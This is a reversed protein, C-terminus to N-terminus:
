GRTGTVFDFTKKRYDPRKDWKEERYLGSQRFLCDAREMDGDTWFLLMRILAADARSDDGGHMSTDGRWLNKFKDGNRAAMAKKILEDNDRYLRKPHTKKQAKVPGTPSVVGVLYDLVRQGDAIDSKAGYINGTVTFYKGHPYIEVPIDIRSRDSTRVGKKLAARIIVHLGGGSVSYETYSALARVIAATKANIEQGEGDFCHDLDVGVMGGGQIFVFGIGDGFGKYHCELATDFDTWTDSNASSAKRGTTTYPIKTWRGNYEVGKWLVWQNLAKLEDPIGEPSVPLFTKNM